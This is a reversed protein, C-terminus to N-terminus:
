NEDDLLDRAIKNLEGPLDRESVIYKVIPATLIPQPVGELDLLIFSHDGAGNYSGKILKDVVPVKDRGMRTKLVDIGFRMAYDKWQADTGRFAQPIPEDTGTLTPWLATLRALPDHQINAAFRQERDPQVDGQEDISVEEPYTLDAKYQSTDQDTYGLQSYLSKDGRGTASFLLTDGEHVITSSPLKRLMSVRQQLIEEAKRFTRLLEDTLRATIVRKSDVYRKTGKAHILCRGESFTCSGTCDKENEIQLCDRRLISPSASGESTVVTNVFPYLLIDLRKQLEYMPLRKRAQRLLEIQKKMAAGERTDLWNSLSIRVHEYAEDLVEEDTSDVTEADPDAPGLLAIDMEWPLESIMEVQTPKKHKPDSTDREPIAYAIQIKHEMSVPAIPIIAQCALKVGVFQTDNFVVSQPRLGPFHHAIRNPSLKYQKGVLFSIVADVPSLPLAEEGFVSPVDMLVCGDDVCPIYFENSTKFPKQKLIAGVLRNSRDRVLKIVNSYDSGTKKDEAAEAEADGDKEGKKRKEGKKATMIDDLNNLESLRPLLPDKPNVVQVWPHVPEATRGCGDAGGYYQNYFSRLVTQVPESLANFQPSYPEIAGFLTRVETKGDAGGLRGEYFVLPEFLGTQANELVFIAPPKVKQSYLSVGFKPCEVVSPGSENWKIKVLVFGTKSFL